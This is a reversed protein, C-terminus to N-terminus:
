LVTATGSFSRTLLGDVKNIKDKSYHKQFTSYRSLHGRKLIQKAPVGLTKAKSTSAARASHGKFTSTDIGALYLVHKLRRSINQTSVAKLPTITALLLQNEGNRINQTRQIYLDIHWCACLNKSSTFNLYKKPPRIKNKRATKIM